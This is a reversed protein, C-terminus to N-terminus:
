HGTHYPHGTLITCARYLQEAVVLRALQHALTMPGLSLLGGRRKGEALAEESWGDAPGVAFVLHQLGEDRRKGLWEALSESSMERGHADLMLVAAETRGRQKGLWELLAKESRYAEISCRMFGSCRKLYGTVLADYGDKAGARSGIHALTVQM